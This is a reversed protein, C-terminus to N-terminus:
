ENKSVEHINVLLNRYQDILYNRLCQQILLRVFCVCLFNRAFQEQLVHVSTNLKTKGLVVVTM